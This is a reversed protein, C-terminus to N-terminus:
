YLYKKAPFPNAEDKLYNKWNTSSKPLKNGQTAIIEKAKEKYEKALETKGADKFSKYAQCLITIRFLQFIKSTENQLINEANTFKKNAREIENNAALVAAIYKNTLARMWSPANASLVNFNRACHPQKENTLFNRYLAINEYFEFFTRNNIMQNENEFQTILFRKTNEKQEYYEESGFNFLGQWLFLYNLDQAINTPDQLKRAYDVAKQLFQKSKQASFNQKEAISAHYNLQGLTGYYRMWLDNDNEKELEPFIKEALNKADEFSEIDQFIVMKEIQLRLVTKTLKYKKMLQLAKDNEKEALDTAGCHCLVVSYLSQLSLYDELHLYEDIYKRYTELLERCRTWNLTLSNRIESEIKPIQERIFDPTFKALHKQVILEKFAEQVELISLNEPLQHLNNEHSLAALDPTITSCFISQAPFTDKVNQYKKDCFAVKTLGNEDFAGSCVFLFPNYKPFNECTKKWLALAVPLQLSNGSNCNEPLEVQLKVQFEKLEPLIYSLEKISHDWEDVRNNNSDVVFPLNDSVKAILEFPIAFADDAYVVPIFADLQFFKTLWARVKEHIANAFADNNQFLTKKNITSCDVVEKYEWFNRAVQCFEECQSISLYQEITSKILQNDPKIWLRCLLESILCVKQQTSLHRIKRPKNALALLEELPSLIQRQDNTFPKIHPPPVKNQM